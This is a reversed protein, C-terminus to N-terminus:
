PLSQVIARFEDETFAKLTKTRVNGLSGLALAFRAAADDSPAEVLAVIDHEGLTLYFETLEAGCDRALGRAAEARNPSERVNTIGQHTYSVLMIYKAM